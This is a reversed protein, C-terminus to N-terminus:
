IRGAIVMGGVRNIQVEALRDQQPPLPRSGHAHRLVSNGPSTFVTYPCSPAAAAVGVASGGRSGSSVTSPSKPESLSNLSPM